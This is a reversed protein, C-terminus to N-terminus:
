MANTEPTRYGCIVHYPQDTGLEEGLQYLLDLLNPDIPKIANARWDRLVHNVDTLASPVYSGGACYATSLRENTHLHLFSLNRDPALTAAPVVAADVRSPLVATAAAAAGLALFRRRSLGHHMISRQSHRSTLQVM